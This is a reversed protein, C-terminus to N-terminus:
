GHYQPFLFLLLFEKYSKNIRLFNKSYNKVTFVIELQNLICLGLLFYQKWSMKFLWLKLFCESDSIYLKLLPSKTLM